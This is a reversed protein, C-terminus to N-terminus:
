IKIKDEYFHSYARDREKLEAEVALVLADDRNIFWDQGILWKLYGSNLFCLSHGKYKGFPMKM